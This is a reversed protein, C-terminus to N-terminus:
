SIKDFKDILERIFPTEGAIDCYHTKTEVCAQVIPMGVQHYPAVVSILVKTSQAMTVLANRDDVTAQFIEVTDKLKLKKKTEELPIRDRGAIAWHINQYNKCIYDCVLNGVFGEAGYIIIDFRRNQDM